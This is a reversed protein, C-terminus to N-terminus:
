DFSEWFSEEFGIVESYITFKRKVNDLGSKELEVALLGQAFSSAISVIQPPFELIVEREDKINNAIQAEYIDRGFPRGSLSILSKDKFNLKIRKM